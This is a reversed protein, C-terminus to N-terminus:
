GALEWRCLDRTYKSWGMFIYLKTGEPREEEFDRVFIPSIMPPAQLVANTGVAEGAVCVGCPMERWLDEGDCTISAPFGIFVQNCGCM